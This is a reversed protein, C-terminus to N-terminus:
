SEQMKQQFTIVIFEAPRSIAVKVSIRMVGDLIDNPTMTAGLGIEVQYAQEPSAGVLGGLKWLDNLFSSIMSKVLVWTNSTNPEYVYAKAAYKISQEIFILTRRVNIYRWDQSNGDLTRAGWVITGQGIFSRIANVSKGTVTLNLDEQDDHTLKVVPSIVSAISTNAPAKWVGRSNDIATYIGAMAPSPPLVNLLNRVKTLISKFVPSVVKLTQNVGEVDADPNSIKKIETKIEDSKKKDDTSRDVEKTLLSELVDLNSINKYSVEENQVISTNLFPYYASGYALFNSGVGERFRTIVDNRDYTRAATGKFVDLIAFRNKMKYGCHSIMAQQLAFCDGEELEVAEPIVVMTPEEESILAILGDELAKKSVSNLKPGSSSSSGYYDDDSQSSDSKYYTGVSVIYCTGGGNAFFLRLSDYFLFRSESDQVLKYSAGDVQFDFSSGQSQQISFTTKVGAGFISHYEALSTIRVPQNILSEGERIAKETYGIFAPIATPIGAVSNPFANKEEIYVGPTALTQAM